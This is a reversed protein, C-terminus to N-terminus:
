ARTHFFTAPTTEGISCANCGACLFKYVVSARLECPIPDKVNFMSGIKFSLFVLKIELNNCYLNILRRIRKQTVASLPGIYPLKFYLTSTADSVSVPPSYDNLTSTIHRNVNVREVLHTPFRNKLFIDTLKKMDEHFSLWTSNIKYTRDVLTIILGM